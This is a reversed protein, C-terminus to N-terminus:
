IKLISRQKWELWMKDWEWSPVGGMKDRLWFRIRSAGNARLYDAIEEFEKIMAVGLISQNFNGLNNVDAGNEVLHKVVEIHGNLSAVHLPTLGDTNENDVMAGSQIPIKVIELHDEQAAVWLPSKGNKGAASGAPRISCSTKTAGPGM